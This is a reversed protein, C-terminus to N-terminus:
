NGQETSHISYLLTINGNMQNVIVTNYEWKNSLAMNECDVDKTTNIKEILTYISLVTVHISIDIYVLNILTM